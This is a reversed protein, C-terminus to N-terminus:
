FTCDSANVCNGPIVITKATSERFTKKKGQDRNIQTDKNTNYGPTLSVLQWNIASQNKVIVTSM